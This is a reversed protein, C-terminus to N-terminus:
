LHECVQEVKVAWEATTSATTSTMVTIAIKYIKVTTTITKGVMLSMLMTMITTEFAQTM